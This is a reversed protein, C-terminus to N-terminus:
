EAKETPTLYYVEHTEGIENFDHLKRLEGKTGRTVDFEQPIESLEKGDRGLLSKKELFYVKCATEKSNVLLLFIYESWDYEFYKRFKEGNPLERIAQGTFEEKAEKNGKDKALIWAAWCALAAMFMCLFVRPGAQKNGESDVDKITAISGVVIISIILLAWFFVVTGKKM